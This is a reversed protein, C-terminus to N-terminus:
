QVSSPLKKLKALLTSRSVGLITASRSHNNGTFRLVARIHEDEIQQLTPMQTPPSSSNIAIPLSNRLEAPLHDVTVEEGEALILAREIVNKLERVNGPWRYKTLATMFSSSAGIKPRGMEAAYRTIFHEALIIVDGGRECLPPLTIPMVNIRYYLDERFLGAKVQAALDRNTAGIFRTHSHLDVVGGVRRFIKTDLVKLLKAQIALPMEALEDFFITGNEALEFLGSKSKSADTFAG